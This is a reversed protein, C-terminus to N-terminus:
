EEFFGVSGGVWSRGKNYRVGVMEGKSLRILNTVVEPRAADPEWLMLMRIEIKAPQSPTQVVPAYQVKRQLIYNSRDDISELDFRNLNIIVGSGAFSYLPKLVYNELDTPFTDVDSLFRSDPVYPSDLLPLMYKSIRFFWHPHGVWEVDAAQTFYFQRKLDDRKILEDFIVRNYIRRVRTRKGDLRYYLRDGEVELESICVTAIGLRRSALAFDIETTQKSPEVELLITEKPDADGVIVRRLKERYSAQDLGNFFSSYGEPIPFHRRYGEALTDQFYYLSPFGQAEILQPSLRGQEDQCIGFDLQLFTTHANDSPMRQGALVAAETKAKFDPQVIVDTIQECATLLQAKLDKGVFVPTEAVPFKPVQGSEDSLHQLLRGYAEPTWDQNYQQRLTTIM